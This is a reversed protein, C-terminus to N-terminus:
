TTCILWVVKMLFCLRITECTTGLDSLSNLVVDLGDTDKLFTKMDQVSIGEVPRGAQFRSAEMGSHKVSGSVLMAGSFPSNLKLLFYMKWGDMKLHWTLKLSPLQDDRRFRTVKM